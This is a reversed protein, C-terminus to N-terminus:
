DGIPDSPLQAEIAQLDTARDALADIVPLADRPETTTVVRSLLSVPLSGGLISAGLQATSRDREAILQHATAPTELLELTFDWARDRAHDIALRMIREDLTGGIRDIIAMRRSVTGLAGQLADLKAFLIHNVRLFDAYLGGPDDGAVKAAVIGLDLNIHANMGALLHQIIMRRRRSEAAEFAVRWSATPQLGASWARYADVYRDAFTTALQEVRHGDDFFGSRIAGQIDRTVSRYM